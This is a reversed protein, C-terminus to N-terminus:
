APPSSSPRATPRRGRRAPWEPFSSVCVIAGGRDQARMAAIAHKCTLFMGRGDIAMVAEWDAESTELVDSLPIIGADAVAVDLGGYADLASNVMDRVDIDNAVDAHVSVATLGEAALETLLSELGADNIDAAILRAGERAFKMATARGIGSAAGTIIAVKNKLENM